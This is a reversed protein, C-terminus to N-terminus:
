VSRCAIAWAASAVGATLVTGWAMDVVSMFAPWERLTAMNTIDYTGYAALGLIGGYVAAHWWVGNRVAPMVVLVTIAVAYFLYFVLALGLRPSELMLHGLQDRYFGRAIVGLWIADVALFLIVTSLYAALWVSM